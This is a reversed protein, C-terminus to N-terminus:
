LFVILFGVLNRKDNPNTYRLVLSSYLTFKEVYMHM